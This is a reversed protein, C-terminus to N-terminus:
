GFLRPTKQGHLILKVTAQFRFGICENMQSMKGAPVNPLITSPLVSSLQGADGTTMKTHQM